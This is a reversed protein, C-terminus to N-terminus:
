SKLRVFLPLNKAIPALIDIYSSARVISDKDILNREAIALIITM